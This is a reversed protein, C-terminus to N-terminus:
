DKLYRESCWLYLEKFISETVAGQHTVEGTAAEVFSRAKCLDRLFHRAMVPCIQKVRLAAESDRYFQARGFPDLDQLHVHKEEHEVSEELWGWPKGAKQKWDVRKMTEM